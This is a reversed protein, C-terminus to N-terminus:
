YHLGVNVPVNANVDFIPLTGLHIDFGNLGCTPCGAIDFMKELVQWIDDRTIKGVYRADFSATLQRPKALAATKLDQASAAPSVGISAAAAVAGAALASNRFFDRRNNDQETTSLEQDLNSM